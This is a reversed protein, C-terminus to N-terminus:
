ELLSGFGVPPRDFGRGVPDLGADVKAGRKKLQVAYLFRPFLKFACDRGLGVISERFEVQPADEIVKASAVFGDAVKQAGRM